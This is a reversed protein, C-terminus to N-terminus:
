APTLSFLSCFQIRQFPMICSKKEKEKKQTVSFVCSPQQIPTGKYLFIHPVESSTPMFLSGQTFIEQKFFFAKIHTM